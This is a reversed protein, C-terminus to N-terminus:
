EKKVNLKLAKKLEGIDDSLNAIDDALESVNQALTKTEEGTNTSTALTKADERLADATALTDSISSAYKTDAETVTTDNPANAYSQVKALSLGGSTKYFEEAAAKNVAATIQTTAATIEDNTAKPNAAKYAQVKAAIAKALATKQEALTRANKLLYAIYQARVDPEDDSNAKTMARIKAIQSDTLSSTDMGPIKALEQITANTDSDLGSDQRAKETATNTSSSVIDDSVDDIIQSPSAVYNYTDKHIQKSLKSLSKNAEKIEDQLDDDIMTNDISAGGLDEGFAKFKKSLNKLKSSADALDENTTNLNANIDYVM